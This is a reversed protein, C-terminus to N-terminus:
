EIGVILDVAIMVGGILLLAVVTGIPTILIAYGLPIGQCVVGATVVLWFFCYILALVAIGVVKKFIKM